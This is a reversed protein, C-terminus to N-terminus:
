SWGRLLCIVTQELEPGFPTKLPRLDDLELAEAVAGTPHAMQHLGVTLANIRFLLRPGDGPALCGLRREWHGGMERIRGALWRKFDVATELELNQELVLHLLALLRTLIPREELTRRLVAAFAEISVSGEADAGTEVVAGDLADELCAFWEDLRQRYLGLFLEEKTRVYLYTTGKAVGARRAVAAMTVDAFRHEAFLESAAELIQRRRAEKAADTTARRQRTSSVM